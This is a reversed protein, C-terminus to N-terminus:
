ALSNGVFTRRDLYENRSFLPELFKPRIKQRRPLLAQTRPPIRFESCHASIRPLTARMAFHLLTTSPITVATVAFSNTTCKLTQCREARNVDGAMAICCRRGCGKTRHRIVEQRLAEYSGANLRVRSRAAASV